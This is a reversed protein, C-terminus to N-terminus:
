SKINHVLHRGYEKTCKRRKSECWLSGNLIWKRKHFEVLWRSPSFSLANNETHLTYAWRFLTRSWLIHHIDNSSNPLAAFCSLFPCICHPSRALLLLLFLALMEVMRIFIIVRFQTLAFASFSSNHETAKKGEGLLLLEALCCGNYYRITRKTTGMFIISSALAHSDLYELYFVAYEDYDALEKNPNRETHFM